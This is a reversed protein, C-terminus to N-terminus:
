RVATLSVAVPAYSEADPRLGLLPATKRILEAAVPVAIYGATRREQGAAFITGEDVTVVLVYQPDSAPFVAAFSAVVKDDAYGGNPDLKDATGTKGGVDYGPVDGFSATGRTVVQRLMARLEASTGESVLRPGPAQPGEQRLLTPTVRQGGNLLSAYAAALHLPSASIGHGYSVTVTSIDRWESPLQPRARGAELLEIGTPGDFGLSELFARQPGAGIQLALRGTGVNSSKVLVDTVSLRPGMPHYDDVSEGSARLPGTTDVMTDPGVMGTELAQAITFLKFTSGLEYLGQVSRNFLPDDSPDGELLRPPRHNPDFDPLSVLSIVEGSHVDMLVSAVGAAGTLNMWASLRQEAEAQITLDLSLQVPTDALAPDSLRPDLEAEIGAVGILETSRVGMDGFRTGGLVHAAIAGNPYLRLERAAFLLGPDGIDYVAQMEEPSIQHRIWLFNRGDTFRRYLTDADLDPFLAALEDAARRPEVMDEIQAYLAQGTMNTALVRGHRDIIDARSSLIPAHVSASRPEQGDSQAVMGMKVGIVGYAMAFCAALFLLRAESRRRATDRIEERRLRRNEAEIATPDQGQARARLVRALPRLPKRIM